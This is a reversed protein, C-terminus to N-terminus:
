LTELADQVTKCRNGLMRSDKSRDPVQGALLRYGRHKNPVGLTRQSWWLAADQRTRSREWLMRSRKVVNGLCEAVRQVPGTSTWRAALVELPLTKEQNRRAEELLWWFMGWHLTVVVLVDGLADCENCTTDVSVKEGVPQLGLRVNEVPVTSDVEGGEVSTDFVFAGEAGQTEVGISM